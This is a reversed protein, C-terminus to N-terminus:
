QGSGPDGTIGWAVTYGGTTGAGGTAPTPGVVGTGSQSNGSSRSPAVTYGAAHVPGTTPTRVASATSPAAPAMPDNNSCAATLAAAAILLAASGRAILPKM